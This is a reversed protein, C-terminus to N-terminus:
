GFQRGHAALEADGDLTIPVEFGLRDIRTNSGFRAGSRHAL